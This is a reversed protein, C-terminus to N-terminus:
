ATLMESFGKRAEYDDFAADIEAEIEASALAEVQKAVELVRRQIASPFKAYLDAAIETQDIFSLNNMALYYYARARKSQL